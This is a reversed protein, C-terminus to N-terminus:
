WRRQHWQVDAVHAHTSSRGCAVRPKRGDAGWVQISPGPSNLLPLTPSNQDKKSAMSKSRAQALISWASESRNLLEIGKLRTPLPIPTSVLPQYPPGDEQCNCHLFYWVGRVYRHKQWNTDFIRNYHTPTGHTTIGCQRPTRLQYQGLLICQLCSKGISAM